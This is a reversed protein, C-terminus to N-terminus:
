IRPWYYNSFNNLMQMSLPIKLIYMFSIGGRNMGHVLLFLFPLIKFTNYVQYHYSSSLILIEFSSVCNLILKFIDQPYTIKYFQIIQLFLDLLRSLFLVKKFPCNLIFFNLSCDLIQSYIYYFYHTFLDYIYFQFCFPLFCLIDIEFDKLLRAFIVLLLLLKLLFHNLIQSYVIFYWISSYAINRFFNQKQAVTLHVNRM